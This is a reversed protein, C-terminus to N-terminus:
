YDFYIAHDECHDYFEYEYHPYVDDFYIADDEYVDSFEHEYYPEDSDYGSYNYIKTRSGKCQFDKIGSAFMLIEEDDEDFGICDRVHLLELEKCGKLILELNVKELKTKDLVLRKITSLNSVIAIAVEQDVYSNTVSLEVFNKCNLSINGIVQVLHRCMDLKLVELSKWKVLLDSVACGVDCDYTDIVYADSSVALVKLSSCRYCFNLHHLAIIVRVYWLTLYFWLTYM